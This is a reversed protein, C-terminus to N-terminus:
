LKKIENDITEFTNTPEDQNIGELVKLEPSTPTETPSPMITPTPNISAMPQEEIKPKTGALVWIVVLVIVLVIITIIYKKNM